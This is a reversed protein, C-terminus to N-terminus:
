CDSSDQRNQGLLKGLADAAVSISPYLRIPWLLGWIFVRCLTILYPNRIERTDAYVGPLLTLTLGAPLLAITIQYGLKLYSSIFPTLPIRTVVLKDYLMFSFSVGFYLPVIYLVPEVEYWVRRALAELRPMVHAREELGPIVYIKDHGIVREGSDQM